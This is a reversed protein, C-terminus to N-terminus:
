LELIFYPEEHFETDSRRKMKYITDVQQFGFKQLLHESKPNKDHTASLKGTIAKANEIVATLAETMFGQNWYEEALCFGLNRTNKDMKADENLGIMSIVIGTSKLEIAYNNKVAMLYQLVERCKDRTEVTSSGEPITVNPNSLIVFMDELDTEKWDRLLLRDTELTKM